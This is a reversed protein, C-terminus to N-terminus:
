ESVKGDLIFDAIGAAMQLMSTDGFSFADAAKISLHVAQERVARAQRDEFEWSRAAPEPNPNDSAM